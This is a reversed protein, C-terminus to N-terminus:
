LLHLAKLTEKWTGEDTAFGNDEENAWMILILFEGGEDEINDGVDVSDELDIGDLM